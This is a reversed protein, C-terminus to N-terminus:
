PNVGFPGISLHNLPRLGVALRHGDSSKPLGVADDALSPFRRTGSGQCGVEIGGTQPAYGSRWRIERAVMRCGRNATDKFAHLDFGEIRGSNHDAALDEVILGLAAGTLLYHGTAVTDGPVDAVLGNASATRRNCPRGYHAILSLRLLLFLLLLLLLTVPRRRHV